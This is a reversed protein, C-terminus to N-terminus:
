LNGIVRSESAERIAEIGETKSGDTIRVEYTESLIKIAGILASFRDSRFHKDMHSRWEWTEELSILNENDIDKLVRCDVCGKEQRTKDFILRCTQLLENRKTADAHINITLNVM